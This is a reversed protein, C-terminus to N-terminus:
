IFLDSNVYLNKNLAICFNILGTLTTMQAPSYYPFINEQVLAGEWEHSGGELVFSITPATPNNVAVYGNTFIFICNSPVTPPINSGRKTGTSVVTIDTSKGAILNIANKAVTVNAM